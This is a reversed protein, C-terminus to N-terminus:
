RAFRLKALRERAALPRRAAERTEDLDVIVLATADAEKELTLLWRGDASVDLLEAVDPRLTRTVGDAFAIAVARDGDITIVEGASARVFMPPARDVAGTLKLETAKTATFDIWALYAGDRHKTWWVLHGPGLRLAPNKGRLAVAPRAAAGDALEVIHLEGGSAYAVRRQDRALAPAVVGQRPFGGIQATLSTGTADSAFPYRRLGTGASRQTATVVGDGGPALWLANEFCRHQVCSADGAIAVSAGRALDGLLLTTVDAPAPTRAGDVSDAVMAVVYRSSGQDVAVDFVVPSARGGEFRHLVHPEDDAALDFWILEQVQGAGRVAVLPPPDAPGVPELPLEEPPPLPTTTETTVPTPAPPPLCAPTAATAALLLVLARPTM